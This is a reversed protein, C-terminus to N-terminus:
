DLRPIFPRGERLPMPSSDPKLIARLREQVEEASTFEHDLIHFLAEVGAAHIRRPNRDLCANTKCRPSCYKRTVKTKPFKTGCHLCIGM